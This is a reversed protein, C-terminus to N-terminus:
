LKCTVPETTTLPKPNAVVASKFVYVADASAFIEVNCVNVELTPVVFVKVAEALLLNFLISVIEAEFMALILEISIMVDEVVALNFEISVIEAEFIALIPENSVIEADFMALIFENSVVEADTSVKFVVCFLLNFLKSILVPLKAVVPEFV